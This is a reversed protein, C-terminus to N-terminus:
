KDNKRVAIVKAPRLVSGDNMYKYGKKIVKVIENEMKSDDIIATDCTHLKDTFQGGLAAIEEIGIELLEKKVVKMTFDLNEILPKNDTEIAFNYVSDIEDVIHLINKADAIEKNKRSNIEQKLKLIEENNEKIIIRKLEEINQDFNSQQSLLNRKLKKNDEIVDEIVDELCQSIKKMEDRIESIEVAQGHSSDLKDTEVGNFQEDIENCSIEQKQEKNEEIVTENTCDVKEEKIIENQLNDDKKGKNSWPLNVKM